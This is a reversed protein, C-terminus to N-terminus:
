EDSWVTLRQRTEVDRLVQEHGDPWVIRVRDVVELDGLGFHVRPEASSGYNMGGAVVHREQDRGGGEVRVVAGVGHTNAGSTRLAIQLWAESGCRAVLLTDPGRLDRKFVDLWGDGNIDEVVFGRGVGGDDAGWAEGEDVFSGDPQQLYLGDPQREPNEWRENVYRVAGYAVLADLDADNDIDAFSSGWGVRQGRDRENTLGREMAYDVWMGLADSSLLLRNNNWEPVLVDQVGDANIDAVALGMGTMPLDLGSAGNDAVLTGGENWLLMNPQVVGFDNVIYLDLWGDADMDYWGAAYTYGLHVGDPLWDRADRFTGDGQNIYLVSPEAPGFSETETGGSEDFWGYNGVFLDLDGDRDLDGWASSMSRYRGGSLGAGETVDVFLGDGRNELLTNHQAYRTIYVDLDGDGDYDAASAGTGLTNGGLWDQTEVFTGAPTQLYRKLGTETPALIDQRGDQDLDMTLAGGGWLWMSSNPPVPFTYRDWRAEARRSPDECLIPGSTTVGDKLRDLRPSREATQECSTLLVASALLLLLHVM